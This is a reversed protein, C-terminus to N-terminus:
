KKDRLLRWKEGKSPRTDEGKMYDSLRLTVNSVGDAGFSVSVENRRVSQIRGIDFAYFSGVEGKREFSVSIWRGTLDQNVAVPPNKVIALNNEELQFQEHLLIHRSPVSYPEVTTYSPSSSTPQHISREVNTCVTYRSSRNSERQTPFYSAQVIDDDTINVNLEEENVLDSSIEHRFSAVLCTSALSQTAKSLASLHLNEEALCEEEFEMTTDSNNSSPLGSRVLEVMRRQVVINEVCKETMSYGQGYHAFIVGDDYTHRVWGDEAAINSTVWEDLIGNDMDESDFFMFKTMHTKIKISRQGELGPPIRYRAM